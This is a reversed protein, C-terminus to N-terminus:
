QASLRLGVGLVIHMRLGYLLANRRPVHRRPGCPRQELLRHGDNGRGRARHTAVAVRGGAGGGSSERPVVEPLTQRLTASKRRAAPPSTGACASGGDTPDHCSSANYVDLVFPGCTGDSRFVALYSYAGAGDGLGDLGGADCLAVEFQCGASTSGALSLGSTVHFTRTQGVSTPLIEFVVAGTNSM